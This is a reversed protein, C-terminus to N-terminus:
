RLVLARLNVCQLAASNVLQWLLLGHSCSNWQISLLAVSMDIRQWRDCLVLSHYNLKVRCRCSSSISKFSFVLAFVAYGRTFGWWISSQISSWLDLDLFLIRLCIQITSWFLTNTRKLLCSFSEWLLLSELDPLRHLQHVWVEGDRLQWSGLVLVYLVYVMCARSAGVASISGVLM